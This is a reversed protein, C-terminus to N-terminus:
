RSTLLAPVASRQPFYELVIAAALIAVVALLILTVPALYFLAVALVLITSARGPDVAYHARIGHWVLIGLWLLALAGAIGVVAGAPGRTGLALAALDAVPRTLGTAVGVFVLMPRMPRAQGALRAAAHVATAGLVWIFLPSLATVALLAPWSRQFLYLVVSTLDRGLLALLVGVLPSRGRGFMVDEVAVEGAFRLVQLISIATAVAVLALAGSLRGGRLVGAAGERPSRVLALLSM